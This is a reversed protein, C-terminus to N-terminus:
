ELEKTREYVIKELDQNIKKLQREREERELEASIRGAFVEFLALVYDKHTIKNKFLAVMLAFVEGRSNKLPTGIYGEIDMNILLEDKPFIRTVQDEYICTNDNSVNKCPTYDLGYFFDDMHGEKGWLGLTNVGSKEFDIKGIFIYDAEIMVGLKETMKSFFADGWTQEANKLVEQIERTINM